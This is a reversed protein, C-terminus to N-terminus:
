SQGFGRVIPEVDVNQEAQQARKADRRVKLEQWAIGLVPGVTMVQVAFFGFRGGTAGAKNIAAVLKPDKELFTRNRDKLGEQSAAMASASADLGVVALTAALVSYLNDMTEVAQSVGGAGRTRTGSAQRTGSGKRHKDCYRPHRGRGSYAIPDGCVECYFGSDSEIGKAQPEDDTPVDTDQFDLIPTASTM